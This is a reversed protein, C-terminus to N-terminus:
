TKSAGPSREELEKTQVRGHKERTVSTVDGENGACQRRQKGRLFMRRLRGNKIGDGRGTIRLIV